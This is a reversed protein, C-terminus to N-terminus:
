REFVKIINNPNVYVLEGISDKIIVLGSKKDIGKIEVAEKTAGQQMVAHRGVTIEDIKM